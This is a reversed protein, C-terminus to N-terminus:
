VAITKLIVPIIYLEQDSPFNRVVVRALVPTKRLNTLDGVLRYAALQPSALGGGYTWQNTVTAYTATIDVPTVRTTSNVAMFAETASAHYLFEVYVHDRLLTAPAAGSKVVLVDISLEQAFNNNNEWFGFELLSFDHNGIGTVTRAPATVLWALGNAPGDIPDYRLRDGGVAITTHSVAEVKWKVGERATEWRNNTGIGTNVIEISQNQIQSTDQLSYSSPNSSLQSDVIFIDTDFGDNLILGGTGGYNSFDCAIYELRNVGDVTSTFLRNNTTGQFTCHIFTARIGVNDSEYQLLTNGIFECDRFVHKCDAANGLDAANNTAEFRCNEFYSFETDVGGGFALEATGTAQNTRAKIGYCRLSGVFVVGETAVNGTGLFEGGGAQMTQFGSNGTAGSPIVSYVRVPLEFATTVGTLTVTVASESHSSSVYVIDDSGLTPLGAWTLAANTWTLADGTGGTRSSDLFFTAV